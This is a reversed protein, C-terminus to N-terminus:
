MSMCALGDLPQVVLCVLKGQQVAATPFDLVLVFSNPLVKKRGKFASFGGASPM